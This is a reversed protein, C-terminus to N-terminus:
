NNYNFAKPLLIKKVRLFKLDDKVKELVESKFLKLHPLNSYPATFKNGKDIQSILVKINLSIVLLRNWNLNNKEFEINKILKEFYDFWLRLDENSNYKECFDSFSLVPSKIITKNTELNSLMLDSIATHCYNPIVANRKMIEEITSVGAFYYNSSLGKLTQLFTINFKKVTRPLRRFKDIAEEQIIKCWGFYNGLAYYFSLRSNVDEYAFIKKDQIIFDLRKDLTKAAKLLKFSYENFHEKAQRNLAINQSIINDSLIKIAAGIIGGVISTIFLWLITHDKLSQTFFNDDM